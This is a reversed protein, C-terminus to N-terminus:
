GDSAESTGEGRLGQRKRGRQLYQRALRDWDQQDKDWTVRSQAARARDADRYQVIEATRRANM